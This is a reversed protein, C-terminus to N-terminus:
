EGGKMKAWAKKAKEETFFVNKNISTVNEGFVFNGKVSILSIFTHKEYMTISDVKCKFIEWSGTYYRSVVYMTEGIKCPLEIINENQKRYDANYAAEANYWDTCNGHLCRDCGGCFTRAMEEIQKLESNTFQNQTPTNTPTNQKERSM